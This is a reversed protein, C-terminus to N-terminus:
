VTVLFLSMIAALSGYEIIVKHSLTGDIKHYFISSSLYFLVTAISASVTFVGSLMNILFISTVLAFILAYFLNERSVLRKRNLHFYLYIFNIILNIIFVTNVTIESQKYLLFTALNVIFYSYFKFIYMLFEISHEEFVKNIIKNRKHVVHFPLLLYNFFYGVTTAVVLATSILLNQQYYILVSLGIFTLCVYTIHNLGHEILRQHSIAKKGTFLSNAYNVTFFIELFIVILGVFMFLIFVNTHGGLELIILGAMLWVLTFSYALARIIYRM